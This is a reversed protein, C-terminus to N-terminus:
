DNKDGTDETSEIVQLLEAPVASMLALESAARCFAMRSCRIRCPSKAAPRLFLSPSEFPASWGLALLM